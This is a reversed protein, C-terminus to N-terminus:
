AKALAATKLSEFEAQTIAGSDLLGKASAIEDTASSTDARQRAYEDFQAQAKQQSEIARQTMGSGRAILHIFTMLWPVLLLAICWM